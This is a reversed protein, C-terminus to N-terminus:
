QLDCRSEDSPPGVKWNGELGVSGRVRRTNSGAAGVRMV